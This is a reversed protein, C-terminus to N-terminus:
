FVISPPDITISPCFNFRLEVTGKGSTVVVSFYCLEDPVNQQFEVDGGYKEEIIGEVSMDQPVAISFGTSTTQLDFEDSYDDLEDDGNYLSYLEDGFSFLFNNEGNAMVKVTYNVEEGTLSKVPFEHTKGASLFLNGGDLNAYYKEEGYQVYFTTGQSRMFFYAVGGAVGFVLLVVLIYSVIKGVANGARSAKSM